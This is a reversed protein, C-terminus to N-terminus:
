LADSMPQSEGRKWCRLSDGEGMTPIVRPLFLFPWDDINFESGDIVV